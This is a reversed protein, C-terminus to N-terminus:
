AEKLKIVNPDEQVTDPIIATIKLGKEKKLKILRDVLVDDKFYQFYM